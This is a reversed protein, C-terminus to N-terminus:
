TNNWRDLETDCGQVNEHLLRNEQCVAKTIFTAKVRVSSLVFLYSVCKPAFSITLTKKEYIPFEFGHPFLSPTCLTTGPKIRKVRLVTLFVPNLDYECSRGEPGGSSTGAGLPLVGYINHISWLGWFKNLPCNLLAILLFCRTSSMWFDYNYILYPM